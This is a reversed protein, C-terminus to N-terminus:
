RPMVTGRVHGSMELVDTANSFTMSDASLRDHGRLIEVPKNSTVRETNVFVHLYESHIELRPKPRPSGEPAAQRTVVADGLLQVESADSNSIARKATAVTVDGDAGIARMRPHDIEVTDTDPYHRAEVGFIENKLRGSADFSKVSFRRMYSDPEHTPKSQSQAPGVNPTNRALWYTGLAILGMLIVPLYVSLREWSARLMRGSPPREIFGGVM